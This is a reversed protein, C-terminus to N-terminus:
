SSRCSSRARMPARVPAGRDGDFSDAHGRDRLARAPVGLRDVGAREGECRRASCAASCRGHREPRARPDGSRRADLLSPTATSTPSAAPLLDALEARELDALRPDARPDVDPNEAWLTAAPATAISRRPSSSAGHTSRRRRARRTPRAISTAPEIGDLDTAVWNPTGFLFPLVDIGNSPRASCSPTSPGRLRLRRGRDSRDTGLATFLRLTGVRGEGMRDLDTPRWRAGAPRRRLLQAPAPAAPASDEDGCAPVAIAALAALALVVLPGSRRRAGAAGQRRTRALMATVSAAAPSSRSRTGPRSRADARQGQVPRGQRVLRLDAQRRPRAVRVLDREPDQVQQPKALFYKFRRADPPEAQGQKGRNLPNGGTASSWGVETVWLEAATDGAQVIEKRFLKSRSARGEDGLAGYPHIRSGTSTTRSGPDSTSASRSLESATPKASRRGPSSGFM